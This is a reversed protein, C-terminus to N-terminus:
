LQRAYTEITQSFGAPTWGFAKHFKSLDCTNPEQSMLVQDRNFGLLRNPLISALIKAKWAPMAMIWRRRGSIALASIRHLEPWTVTQSGGLPYTQGITDPKEIADVFARAVDNVLIPQLMGAGGRGLPGAGFYPMFLFPPASRRVWRAETRMFEGHPGHILSPRFITYDLGSARVYQEALFKTKHYESVAGHRAGLASMHIYRKVGNRRAADVVARTGDFHIHGFTVGRSRKEMIIGVLHIVASCDRMGRDLATADFLDGPIQTVRADNERLSSGPRVLAHVPYDRGRLEAVLASGVFGTAGTVFVRNSM